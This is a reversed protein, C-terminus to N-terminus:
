RVTQLAVAIAIAVVFLVIILPVKWALESGAAGGCHMCAKEATPTQKQCRACVRRAATPDRHCTECRAQATPTGCFPCRRALPAAEIV